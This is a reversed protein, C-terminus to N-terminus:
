TRLLQEVERSWPLYVQRWSLTRVKKRSLMAVPKFLSKKISVKRGRLCTYNRAITGYFEKERVDEDYGIM